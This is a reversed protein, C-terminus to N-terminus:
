AAPDIVEHRPRVAFASHIGARRLTAYCLAAYAISVGASGVAVAPPGWQALWPLTVASLALLILTFRSAGGEHGCTLMLGNVPGAVVVLLAGVALIQLTLAAEGYGGFITLATAPALVLFTVLPVATLIAIKTASQSLANLRVLDGEHHLKAFRQSLYSIQITPVLAVFQSLRAGASFIAVSSQAVSRDAIFYGLALVPMWSFLYFGMSTLFFSALSARYHRLYGLFGTFGARLGLPVSRSILIWAWITTVVYGLAIMWVAGSSSIQRTAGAIAIGIAAIILPSGLESFTGAAVRGLGRLVAGGVISLSAPLVAAAAALSVAAAAGVHEQLLLAAVLITAALPTMVVCVLISYRVIPADEHANRSVERLALNDAGFRGLTAAMILLTYALLVLGADSPPLSRLVAVNMAFAGGMSAGRALLGALAGGRLSATLSESQKLLARRLNM